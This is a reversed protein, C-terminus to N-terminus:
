FKKLLCKKLVNIVDEFKATNLWPDNLFRIWITPNQDGKKYFELVAMGDPTLNPSCIIHIKTDQHVSEDNTFRKTVASVNLELERNIVITQIDEVNSFLVSGDLPPIADVNLVIRISFISIEGTLLHQFKTQEFESLHM